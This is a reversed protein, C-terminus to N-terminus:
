TRDHSRARGKRCRVREHGPAATQRGPRDEGAGPVGARAERQHDVDQIRQHPVRRRRADSTHSHEAPRQRGGIESLCLAGRTEGRALVPLFREKQEPTGFSKLVDCLVLHTGLIGSLGLWARALEEFVAVFTTHGAGIGEYTDPINLGFLGLRGMTAVLGDPYRDQKELESAVPLVERAVFERVTQIILDHDAGPKSVNSGRATFRPEMWRAVTRYHGPQGTRPLMLSPPLRVERALTYDLAVRGSLGSSGIRYTSVTYKDIREAEMRRACGPGSSRSSSPSSARMGAFAPM